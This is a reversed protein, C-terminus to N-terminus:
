LGYRGRIANFNQAIETASLVRNYVKQSYITGNLQEGSIGGASNTDMGIRFNPGAAISGTLVGTTVQVGNKYLVCNGATDRSCAMHYTGVGIPAGPFYVSGGIFLGYLGSIWIYNSSTYGSGYNGFLEGAPSAASITYFCEFTFPNNGTIINNATEMYNNSGNFSFTGDSAYTLSGPTITYNKILDVISQTNSRIGNVFPTPYSGAEVQPMTVEWTSNDANNTGGWSILYLTMSTNTCNLTISVRQWIGIKSKDLANASDGGGWGSVYCTGGNNNSSGGWYRFWASFTYTGTSPISIGQACGNWSGASTMRWGVTGFETVFTSTPGNSYNNFNAMTAANTVLNTTPQGQFSKPNNMDWYFVLGNTVIKPNGYQAM